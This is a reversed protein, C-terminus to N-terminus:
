SFKIRIYEIKDFVIEKFENSVNLLVTFAIFLSIFVKLFIDVVVNTIDPLYSDILLMVIAVLVGCALNKFNFKIDIIEKSSLYFRLCMWFYSVVTTWAAALMGFQDIFLINLLLNILMSEFVYQFIAFQNKKIKLGASYIFTSAFLGVALFTIPLVYASEIYKDSALLSMLPESIMYLGAVSIPFIYLFYDSVKNIFLKAMDFQENKWMGLYIPVLATAVGGFIVDSLIKSIAHPASYMAVSEIDLYYNILFRDTFAHGIQLVEVLMLPFGYVVVLRISKKDVFTLPFDKFFKTSILLLVIVDAVLISIIVSFASKEFYFIFILMSLLSGYKYLVNIFNVYLSDQQSMYMSTVVSRLAQFIAILVVLLVLNNELSIEVVNAILLVMFSVTVISVCVSYIVTSAIDNEGKKFYRMVSQQLGLKYIAALLGSITTLLSLYGYQDVELSRTLIPFSILGAISLLLSGSAYHMGQKLLKGLM